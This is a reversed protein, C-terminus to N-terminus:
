CLRPKIAIGAYKGRTATVSFIVDKEEVFHAFAMNDQVDDSLFVGGPRLANWLMSYGFRRGRYSKDSDYHVIDVGEPFSALARRLGNRDPERVITWNARLDLPVVIGVFPDNGVGPYPRDVSVLKGGFPQMATLFALSSWGYAVGTEVAAAARTLRTAAYILDIYGPGGMHYHCQEARMKAAHLVDMEMRPMEADASPLLGCQTLAVTLPRAHTRAWESALQQLDRSDLNPLFPKIARQQLHAWYSPRKLYFLASRVKSM